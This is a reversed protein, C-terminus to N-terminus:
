VQSTATPWLAKVEKPVMRDDWGLAQMLDKLWLNTKQVTSDFGDLGTSM